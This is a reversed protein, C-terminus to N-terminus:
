FKLFYDDFRKSFLNILKRSKGIPNIITDDNINKNLVLMRSFNGQEILGHHLRYAAIAAGGHNDNMNVILIKM